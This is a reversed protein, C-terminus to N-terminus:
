TLVRQPYLCMLYKKLPFAKNRVFFHPFLENSDDSPLLVPNTLDLGVALCHDTVIKALDHWSHLPPFVKSCGVSVFLAQHIGCYMMNKLFKQDNRLLRHLCLFQSYNKWYNINNRVCNEWQHMVECLIIHYKQSFLEPKWTGSCLVPLQNLNSIETPCKLWSAYFTLRM